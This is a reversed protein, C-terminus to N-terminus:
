LGVPMEPFSRRARLILTVSAIGGAIAGLYSGAHIGWVLLFRTSGPSGAIAVATAHQGFDVLWFVPAMVLAGATAAVLPVMSLRTLKRYPLQLRRRSPNNAVLMATGLVLGVWYSGKVALLAAALRYPRPDDRLGKFVLFYESSISATIQDHVVAFGVALATSFVLFGYERLRASRRWGHRYLEWAALVAFFTLGFALRWPLTSEYTTFM